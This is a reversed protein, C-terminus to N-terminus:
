NGAGTSWCAASVANGRVPQVKLVHVDQPPVSALAISPLVDVTQVVDAFWAVDCYRLTSRSEACVNTPTLRSEPM